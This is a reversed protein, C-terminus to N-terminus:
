RTLASAICFNPQQISWVCYAIAPKYEEVCGGNTIHNIVKVLIIKPLPTNAERRTEANQAM